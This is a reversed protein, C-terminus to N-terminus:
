LNVFYNERTWERLMRFSSDIQQSAQEANSVVNAGCAVFVDGATVDLIDVHQSVSKPSDINAKAIVYGSTASLQNHDRMHNWLSAFANLIEVQRHPLVNDGFGCVVHDATPPGLAESETAEPKHGQFDAVHNLGFQKAM